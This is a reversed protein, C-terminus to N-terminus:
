FLPLISPWCRVLFAASSFEFSSVEAQQAPAAQEGGDVAVPVPPAAPPIVALAVLAEPNPDVPVVSAAM